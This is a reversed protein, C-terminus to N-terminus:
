ACLLRKWSFKTRVFPKDPPSGELRVSQPNSFVDKPDVQKKIQELRPLNSRWYQKQGDVLEPDVYGAYAGFDYGGPMNDRITDNFGRLFTRTKERLKPIGVAYSQLYFLADRHAYSTADQKVDNIAGGELDFIIFWILTGKNTKDLYSFVSDIVNDPIDKCANFALSKTYLPASLGGGLQLAVTEAWNGVLGLWDRFVVVKKDDTGPFKEDMQFADYEQKTGFYTGTIIMGIETIIVESTFKRTLEPNSVFKQWKKFATAMNKYPRTTYAFSFQVAEGPEAETKLLFETIIGFSAGAGKVAWFVDENQTASARIISSNALVIEVELVHDLASGWMRSTPGLGGITAHGSLGVQPCTGHAVARNGNNHLQKTLNGLLTGAGVKCKWTTTDMEFKQFHKMDIVVAGDVGGIGIIWMNAMSLCRLENADNLFFTCYNGYSHGGGRAQIKLGADAAVKVIAAVQATTKPYTVAAPKVVRDLNYPKVDKFQYLTTGPFAFLADDNDLAAKIGTVLPTSQSSGM